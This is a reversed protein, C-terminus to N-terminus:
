ARLPWRRSDRDRWLIMLIRDYGDAFYALHMRVFTLGQGAIDTGM